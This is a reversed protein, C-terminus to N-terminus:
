AVGWRVEVTDPELAFVLEQMRLGIGDDPACSTLRLRIQPRGPPAALHITLTGGQACIRWGAAPSQQSSTIALPSRCSARVWSRFVDLAQHCAPLPNQDGYALLSELTLAGSAPVPEDSPRRSM